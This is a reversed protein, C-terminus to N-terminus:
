IQLSVTLCAVFPKSIRGLFVLVLVWALTKVPNRNDLVVVIITGVVAVLFLSSVITSLLGEFFGWVIM